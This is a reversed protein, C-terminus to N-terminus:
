GLDNEPLDWCEVADLNRYPMPHQYLQATISVNRHGLMRSVVAIDVGDALMKSAAFHRLDHPTIHRTIGSKKLARAWNRSRFNDPRLVCGQSSTFLPADLPRDSCLLELEKALSSPIKITRRSSTTKPPKRVASAGQLRIPKTSLTCRVTLQQEAPDYDGVRLGAMEGIRLGLMAMVKIPLRDREDAAKVILRVEDESFWIRIPGASPDDDDIDNVVGSADVKGKPLNVEAIEIFVNSSPDSSLVGDRVAYFFIDTLLSLCKKATAHGNTWSAQPKVVVGDDNVPFEGNIDLGHHTIAKLFSEVDAPTINRIPLDGMNPKIWTNWANERSERTSPEVRKKSERSIGIKSAYCATFYETLTAGGQKKRSRPRRTKTSQASRVETLQREALGKESAAFSRSRRKDGDRWRLRWGVTKGGLDRIPNLSADAM